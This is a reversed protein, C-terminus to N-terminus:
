RTLGRVNTVVSSMGMTEPLVGFLREIAHIMTGDVPLPEPEYDGWALELEVFRKLVAARMWFMSGAPFNFQEPLEGCKMRAALDEAYKRNGTWSAVHPDDPFVIGITADSAMSSLVSDLMTGGLKGGVMNELLFTVWAETFPRNLLHPSKKTHLHGVIDYSAILAPGFQTLLPSIDRGRNPTVQLDVISGRYDSLVDRTWAATDESPVSIFLDPISANLKLREVIDPLEDQYFVHLHLAVRLGSDLASNPTDDNQIVRQLWRGSPLGKGLFEAFPDHNAQGERTQLWSYVLPQFGPMPKRIDTGRIMRRVYDEALGEEGLWENWFQRYFDSRFKGSRLIADVEEKVLVENGVAQMAIAEIKSMYANANFTSEAAARSGESVSARLKDSDALAMVKRALDGTDLYEAVCPERLGNETLFDAIGTTKDFCLVPIGALLADIAMNPLPDLRSSIIFLDAAQYAAEVDSRSRIIKLQSGLEDRKMQDGLYASCAGDPEPDFGNEIWLFQFSQGRSQNIIITACEIFLEIDKKLELNGSGIVLFKCNEGEPRPHRVLSGKEISAGASIEADAPVLCKGPPAVYLATGPYLRFDAVVSELMFKTSFVTKTSLSIVVWFATRPRTVSSFEHILSVTPVAAVNLGRLVRRSEVSNVIAFLLPYQSAIERVVIDLERDTMHIRDAEYLAVSARRFHDTLEGGGLILTIVNHSISLQQVINLALVPIDTRSAQHSVVLITKKREDLVAAPSHKAPLTREPATPVASTGLLRKPHGDLIAAPHPEAPLMREPTTSEIGKKLSREPDRKQASRAFAEAWRASFPPSKTSLYSFIRHRLLERVVKGPRSRATALQRRLDSSEAVEARLSDLAQGLEEIQERQAAILRDKDLLEQKTQHLEAGKESHGPQM